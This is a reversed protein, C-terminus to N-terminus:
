KTSFLLMANVDALLVDPSIHDYGLAKAMEDGNLRDGQAWLSKLFKGAQPNEFWNTGFDKTLKANLQAELFWARLYGASYYMPDVDTLHRKEDSPTMRCGIANSLLQAYIKGPDVAGSHLQLEYLFKACYRRMFYLRHFAQYRIFDKLQNVPMTSHLRLWSQNALLYESLFAYTETVTPEGLYRFELSHDQTNAYHLGHGMEHFLALYDDPGGIPKISLRIDNPVEINFCVARPNKKERKESDIKLNNMAAIDIGMGRYTQELTALMSDGPFYRDFRESRFLPPTDYRYFHDLSLKLTGSVQERLLMTYLQETEKLSRECVTKFEDLDIGKLHQAMANYSAYGLEKALRQNTGEVQVLLTNLSDLVPDTATYLAARGSQKKESAMLSAVQRYPVQKGEVLVTSTAEVNSVQDTLPAVQKSIYEGALYRGLYQLRKKQVSDPEQKGTENVLTIHQLTFLGANARYLSDQNSPAGFAWSNWGMLSQTKLLQETKTRLSDIREVDKPHQPASCSLLCSLLGLASLSSCCSKILTLTRLVRFKM